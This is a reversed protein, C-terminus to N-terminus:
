GLRLSYKEPGGVVRITLDAHMAEVPYCFLFRLGSRVGRQPTPLALETGM